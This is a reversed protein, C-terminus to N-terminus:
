ATQQGIVTIEDMKNACVRVGALTTGTKDNCCPLYATISNEKSLIGTKQLSNLWSWCPQVISKWPHYSAEEEM